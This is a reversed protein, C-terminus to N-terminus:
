LEDRHGKTEDSEEEPQRKSDAGAKTESKFIQKQGKIDIGAASLLAIIEATLGSGAVDADGDGGGVAAAGGDDGGVADDGDPLDDLLDFVLEGVQIVLPHLDDADANGVRLGVARLIENRQATASKDGEEGKGNKSVRSKPASQASKLPAKMPSDAEPLTAQERNQDPTSAVVERCRILATEALDLQSKFGPQGCLRPTHIVLVYSCTRTEKVFLINDAM